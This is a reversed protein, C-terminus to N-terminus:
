SSFLVTHCDLNSGSSPERKVEAMGEPLEAVEHLNYLRKQVNEILLDTPLGPFRCKVSSLISTNAGLWKNSTKNRSLCEDDLDQFM